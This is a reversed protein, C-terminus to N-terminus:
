EMRHTIKTYGDMTLVLDDPLISGGLDGVRVGKYTIEKTIFNLTDFHAYLQGAVRTLPSVPDEDDTVATVLCERIRLREDDISRPIPGSPITDGVADSLLTAVALRLKKLRESDQPFYRNHPNLYDKLDRAEDETLYLVITVEEKREANM